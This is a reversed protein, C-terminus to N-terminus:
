DLITKVIKNLEGLDTFKIVIRGGKDGNKIFVLTGLSKALNKELEVFRSEKKIGSRNNGTASAAEELDKTGLGGTLIRRFMEKQQNTDKFALLTRAHTRSIKRARLSEKVESPLGLLRLSNAVVERSKGVREAIEKQTLNFDSQLRTFAEAEEMANLDERQLNEVLALELKVKDEMVSDKIIVPVHPLNLLRAARWRREGAVLQYEVELGRQTDREEKTVLIPQLIGYKKISAALDELGDKNFDKRPQNPNPKVKHTEVYFVSERSEGPKNNRSPILSNLGKGLGFLKKM